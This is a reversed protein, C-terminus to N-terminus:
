KAKLIKKFPNGSSPPPADANMIKNNESLIAIRPIYNIHFFKNLMSNKPDILLYQRHGAFLPQLRTNANIWHQRNLDVSLYIFSINTQETLKKCINSGEKLETLCPGCWSAWLDIVKKNGSASDLIQQITLTDGTVTLVKDALVEEPLKAYPINLPKENSFLPLVSIDAKSTTLLSAVEEPKIIHPTLCYGVIVMGTILFPLLQKM